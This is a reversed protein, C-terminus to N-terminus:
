EKLRQNQNAIRPGQNSGARLGQAELYRASVNACHSACWLWWMSVGQGLVPAWLGGFFWRECSESLCLHTTLREHHGRHFREQEWVRWLRKARPSAQPNSAKSYCHKNNTSQFKVHVLQLPFFLLCSVNGTSGVRLNMFAVLQDGCRLARHLTRRSAQQIGFGFQREGQAKWLLDWQYSEIPNSAAEPFTWLPWPWRLYVSCHGSQFSSCRVDSQGWRSGPQWRGQQPDCDGAKGGLFSLLSQWTGWM